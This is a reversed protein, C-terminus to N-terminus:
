LFFHPSFCFSITQAEVKSVFVSRKKKKKKCILMKFQWPSGSIAGGLSQLEYIYFHSLPFVISLFVLGLGFDPM